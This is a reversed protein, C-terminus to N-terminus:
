SATEQKSERKLEEYLKELKHVEQITRWHAERLMGIEKRFDEIERAQRKIIQDTESPTAEELRLHPMAKEMYTKRHLYVDRSFYHEDSNKLVHGLWFQVYDYGAQGAYKRFFKRLCYLRLQAPRGKVMGNRSTKPPREFQILGKKKLKNIAARFIQSISNNNLPKNEQGQATFLYSQPTLNNRTKLYNKLYAVAEPGIFTFYGKYKGKAKDQPVEIKCPVPTNEELINEVDRIQLLCLTYPRLGSQAIATYFAKDRPKSINLVELVESRKIDRNHYRVRFKIKPISGLPLDHMKFFSKLPTVFNGLSGEAYDEEMLSSIWAKIYRAYRRKFDETQKFNETDEYERLIQLPTKGIYSCFRKMNEEYYTRTSKSGSNGVAVMDLWVKLVNM